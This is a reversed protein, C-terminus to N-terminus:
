QDDSWMEEFKYIIIKHIVHFTSILLIIHEEEIINYILIGCFCLLIFKDIFSKLVQNMMRIFM